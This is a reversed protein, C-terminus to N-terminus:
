DMVGVDPEMVDCVLQLTLRPSMVPFPVHARKGGGITCTADRFLWPTGHGGWM